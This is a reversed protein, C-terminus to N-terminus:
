RLIHWNSFNVPVRKSTCQHKKQKTGYVRQAFTTASSLHQSYAQNLELYIYIECKPNMEM